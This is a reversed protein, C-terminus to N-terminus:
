RSLLRFGAGLWTTTGFELPYPDIRRELSVFVEVAAGRGEIRIGGEERVGAQTGRNRSGDTGLLRVGSMAIVSARPHLAYRLHVDSDLEWSYDVFSNLLTRRVDARGALGFRGRTGEKRVRGGLMNWDVAVVKPRDSLHRSQHYYVVGVELGAVTGSVVGALVYNGQNPDFRRLEEGLVAQYNAEFTARGSGYKLLDLEGGFNTDWVYREDDSGIHQASMHFAYGPLLELQPSDAAPTPNTAQAAAPVAFAALALALLAPRM